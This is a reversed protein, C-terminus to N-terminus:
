KGFKKLYSKDKWSGSWHHVAYSDPSTISFNEERRHDEDWSYPYVFNPDLGSKIGLTETVYIPGYKIDSRETSKHISFRKPIGDILKKVNINFQSCAIFAGCIVNDDQRFIAFDKNKLLNSIPKLCEFDTDIYLGGFKYLIEFRLIDSKESYNFCSDFADKNFLELQSIQEDDWLNLKWDPNYQAWTNRWEEEQNSLASGGMHIQHIIKPIM